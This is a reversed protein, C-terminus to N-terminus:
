QLLETEQVLMTGDNPCPEPKDNKPPGGLDGTAAYLVRRFLMFDCKPCKWVGPVKRENASM